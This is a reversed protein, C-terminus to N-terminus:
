LEEVWVPGYSAAAAVIFGLIGACLGHHGSECFYFGYHEVKAVADPMAEDSEGARYEFGLGNRKGLGSAANALIRDGVVTSPLNVCIRYEFGMDLTRDFTEMQGGADPAVSMSGPNMEM